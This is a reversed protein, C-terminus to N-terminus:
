SAWASWSSDSSDDDKDGGKDEKKAPQAKGDSFRKNVEEFLQSIDSSRLPRRITLINDPPTEGRGSCYAFVTNSGLKQIMLSLQVPAIGCVFTVHAQEPKEVQSWSASAGAVMDLMSKLSALDNPEVGIAAFAFNKMIGGSKNRIMYKSSIRLKVGFFASARNFSVV